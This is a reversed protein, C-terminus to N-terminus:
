KVLQEYLPKKGEELFYNTDFLKTKLDLEKLSKNNTKVKNKKNNRIETVIHRTYYFAAMVEAGVAGGALLLLVDKNVIKLLWQLWIFNMLYNQNILVIGVFISFGLIMTKVKGLYASKTTAGNLCGSLNIMAITLELVVPFYFISYYKALIFLIVIGFTKDAIVDAISGFLTQVHFKRALFGDVLDTLLIITIIIILILPSIKEWIFPLFFTSLFRLCTLFNVFVKM